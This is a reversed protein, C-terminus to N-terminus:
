ELNFKPFGCSCCMFLSTDDKDNLVLEGMCHTKCLYCIPRSQSKNPLLDFTGKDHIELDYGPRPHLLNKFVCKTHFSSSCDSCGYFWSKPYVEEECIGCCYTSNVNGEGYYLCLPHGDYKHRVYTPLTACTFCLSFGGCDDKNVCRLYMWHLSDCVKCRKDLSLYTFPFLWHPHSEHKFADSISACRVDINIDDNVTYSFGTCYRLCARCVIYNNCQVKACLTLKQNHVPHRKELPLNACGNHLIFDCQTCVYCMKSNLPLTCAYCHKGEKLGLSSMKLNHEHSFHKILNQDIVEFPMREKEEPIGELEEGDWIFMHTACKSHVVYSCILCSYAGCEGNVPERCVGCIWKGPGLSAVRSIRHDHRNIHIVRPLSICERHVIFCCQHCVCPYNSSYLGCADCTFSLNIPIQHLEHEHAEAANLILPERACQICILFACQSCQYLPEFELDECLSCSEFGRGSRTDSRILQLPHKHRSPINVNICEEHVYFDCFDCKYGQKNDHGDKYCAYCKSSIKTSKLRFDGHSPCLKLDINTWEEEM